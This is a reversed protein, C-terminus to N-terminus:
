INQETISWRLNLHRNAPLLQESDANGQKKGDDEQLQFLLDFILLYLSM